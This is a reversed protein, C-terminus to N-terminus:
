SHSGIWWVNSEQQMYNGYIDRMAKGPRGNADHGCLIVPGGKGEFESWASADRIVADRRHDGDLFVLDVDAGHLLVKAKISDSVLVQVREDVGAAKLNAWLTFLSPSRVQAMTAVDSAEGGKFNDVTLIGIGRGETRHAMFVTSRGRFSGIEVIRGGDPVRDCIKGLAEADTETFWGDIEYWQLRSM